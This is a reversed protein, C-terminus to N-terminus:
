RSEVLEIMGGDKSFLFAVRSGGIATAPAPKQLPLFGNKRCEAIAGELDGIEYCIHYPVSMGNSKELYGDVPNPTGDPEVLEICLGSQAHTMFEIKIKRDSDTVVPQSVEYGLFEFKKRATDIDAVAYAIHHIKM